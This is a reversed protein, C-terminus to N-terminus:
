RMATSSRGRARNLRRVGRWLLFSVLLALLVATTLVVPDPNNRLTYFIVEEPQDYGDPIPLVHNDRVYIQYDGLMEALLEPMEARLDNAEGPDKV